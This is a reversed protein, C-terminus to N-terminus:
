LGLCLATCVPLGCHLGISHGHQVLAGLGLTSLGVHKRQNYAPVAFRRPTGNDPRNMTMCRALRNGNALIGRALPWLRAVRNLRLSISSSMTKAIFSSSGCNRRFRTCIGRGAPVVLTSKTSAVGGRCLLLSGLATRVLSAMSSFGDRALARSSDLRRSHFRFPRGLKRSSRPYKSRSSAWNTGSPSTDAVLYEQSCRSSSSDHCAANPCVTNPSYRAWSASSCASSSSLLCYMRPRSLDRPTIGHSPHALRHSDCGGAIHRFPLTARSLVGVIDIIGGAAPIPMHLSSCSAARPTSPRVAAEWDSSPRSPGARMDHLLPQFSISTPPGGGFLTSRPQNRIAGGPVVESPWLLCVFCSLCCCCCRRGGIPQQRM